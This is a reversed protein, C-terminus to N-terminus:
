CLWVICTHRGCGCNGRDRLRLQRLCLSSCGDHAGCGTSWHRSATFRAPIRDLLRVERHDMGRDDGCDSADVAWEFLGPIFLMLQELTNQLYRLNITMRLTEYGSLPDIAPSRLREHAVAEIGTLFCFLIAICSCKLAFVLRALTEEMGALPPLGFYTALWLAVAVPFAIAIETVVTSRQDEFGTDGGRRQEATKTEDM